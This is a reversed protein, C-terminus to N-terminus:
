FGQKDWSGLDRTLFAPGALSAPFVKYYKSDWKHADPTDELWQEYEPITFLDIRKNGKTVKECM